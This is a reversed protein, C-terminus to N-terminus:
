KHLFAKLSNELLCAITLPGIGGPVPTYYYSQEVTDQTIEAVPAGCDVLVTGKSVFDKTVLDKVGTAAVIIDANKCLNKINQTKSHALTVTADKNTLLAALPKGLITSRGIIVVNKGVLRYNPISELASLVALPTASVFAKESGHSLLGLSTPTLGDIDKNPSILSSLSKFDLGEPLPSQIFFGHINKNKNLKSIQSTIESATATKFYILKANMGVEEAKKIKNRVYLTSAPDEGVFIVAINIKYKNTSIENKLNELKQKALERGNIQTAM